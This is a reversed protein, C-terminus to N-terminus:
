GIKQLHRSKGVSRRKMPVIRQLTFGVKKKPVFYSFVQIQLLTKDSHHNGGSQTPAAHQLTFEFLESAM